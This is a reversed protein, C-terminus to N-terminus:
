INKSFNDFEDLKIPTQATHPHQPGNYIKLRKTLHKRGFGNPLMGLVCNEIIREPLTNMLKKLSRGPRGPSYVHFKHFERDLTLHRANILIVYDGTDFASHYYSNIKGSLVSSIRSAIRGLQKDKCDILFWQKKNYDSTPIFTENM